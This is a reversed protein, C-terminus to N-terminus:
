LLQGSVLEVTSVATDITRRTESTQEGHVAVSTPLDDLTFHDCHEVVVEVRIATVAGTTPVDERTNEYRSSSIEGGM